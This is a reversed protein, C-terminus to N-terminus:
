QVCTLLAIVGSFVCSFPMELSMHVGTNAVCDRSVVIDSGSSDWGRVEVVDYSIFIIVVNVYM